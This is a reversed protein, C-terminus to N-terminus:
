KINIIQKEKDREFVFDADKQLVNLACDIGDSLRFKGSCRYASVSPNRIIIKYGYYKEFEKMIDAFYAKKFCILGEKWRYQDYNTIKDIVIRNNHLSAKQHPALVYTIGNHKINVSGEMLSTVFKDNDPYAEVNFKTGLVRVNGKNTQVIFPNHANHTVEFYAEGKLQVVRKHRNFDTPYVLSTRSNLWVRTGDALTLNVRQGAPVAITQLPMPQVSEQYRDYLKTGLIAFIIIAAVKAWNYIRKRRISYNNQSAIREDDALLLLTDFLKRENIIKQRNEPSDDSWKKICEEEESTTERQFFKYLIEKNM